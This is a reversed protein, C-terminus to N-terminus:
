LKCKGIAAPNEKIDKIRKQLLKALFNHDGGDTSFIDDSLLHQLDSPNIRMIMRYATCLDDKKALMLPVMVKAWLPVERSNIALLKNGIETALTMDKLRFAALYVANSYWRWQKVPDTDAHAVLYKIIHRSDEVNQSQGYYFAAISPLYESKRDLDGIAFFWKEILEYNYDKLPITEGFTDGANQLTQSMLRYLWYEDGLGLITSELKTPPYPTITFDPKVKQGFLSWFIFQLCVALVLFKANWSSHWAM